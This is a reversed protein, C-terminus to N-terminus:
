RCLHLRVSLLPQADQAPTAAGPSPARGAAPMLRPVAMLAVLKRAESLHANLLRVSNVGKQLEGPVQASLRNALAPWTPRDIVETFLSRLAEHWAVCDDFQPAEALMPFGYRPLLQRLDRDIVPQLPDVLALLSSAVSKEVQGTLASLQALVGKFQPQPEAKFGQLIEFVSARQLRLKGRLGIYRSLAQQYVEDTTVDVRQLADRLAVFERLHPVARRMAVVATLELDRMLADLHIATLDTM